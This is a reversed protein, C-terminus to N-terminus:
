KGCGRHAYADVFQRGFTREALLKNHAPCLLRLNELEHTGGLSYPKVHDIQLGLTEGCRKGDLGIFTCQGCDRRQVENRVSRSIHRSRKKSIVRARLKRAGTRTRVFAKMTRRLVEAMTAPGVLAKSEKYLAMFSADVELALSFRKEVEIQREAASFLDPEKKVEVNKVRISERKPAEPAKFDAVLSQVELKTRGTAAQLLSEKNEGTLVKSIESIQCLSLEGSEIKGYIEPSVKLARAAVIRRQAASGSYGLKETCYTFLSSYGADRFLGRQDIEHLHLVIDALAANEKTRLSVIAELLQPNSLHTLLPLQM